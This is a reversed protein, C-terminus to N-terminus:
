ILIFLLVMALLGLILWLAYTHLIGSHIVKLIHTVKVIGDKGLHFLDFRNQQANKYIRSFALYNKVTDYFHIIEFESSDRFSEGGIFSDEKRFRTFKAFGYFALGLVISVILLVSILPSNWIGIFQFDGVISAFLTPLVYQSAFVGFGICALALLGAPIWMLAHTEKVQEFEKKDRGLFIGSIFKVFSAVTLASGIVALALWVIWLESAIGPMRGFEIIAQYIIWKSAFGNLPPIGSISLAFILAAAFTLPMYKSLGGLKRLEDQQTKDQVNGAVMFLGSKYIANNIM